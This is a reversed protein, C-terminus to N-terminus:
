RGLSQWGHAVMLGDVLHVSPRVRCAESAPRLPRSGEAEGGGPVKCAAECVAQWAKRARRLAKRTHPNAEYQWWGKGRGGHDCPISYGHLVREFRLQVWRRGSAASCFDNPGPRVGAVGRSAFCSRGVRAAFIACGIWGTVGSNRAVKQTAVRAPRDTPGAPGPMQEPFQGSSSWRARHREPALAERLCSRRTLRSLLLSRPLSRPRQTAGARGVRAAGRERRTPFRSRSTRRGRLDTTAIDDGREESDATSV